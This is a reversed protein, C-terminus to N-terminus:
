AALVKGVFAAPKRKYIRRALKLAKKQLKARRAEIRAILKREAKTKGPVAALRAQLAALDHDDGLCDAVSEARKALKKLRRSGGNAAIAAAQQLYKVQKRSEHLSEASRKSRAHKLAKRGNRYVREFGARLVPVDDVPFRWYEARSGADHLASEIEALRRGRLLRDREHLREEHVSRRVQRLIARRAPKKETRLLERLNELAVSADRVGALPRAADRLEVNERTYASEGVAERLLRLAARARKLDKRVQHVANDNPRRQGWLAALADAIEDCLAARVVTSPRRAVTNESQPM